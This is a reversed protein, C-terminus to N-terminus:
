EAENYAKLISEEFMTRVEQNIPHVIDKFKGTKKDKHNPMAVFLGKTGDIVRLNKIVLGDDITVNVFAKLNDEEREVKRIDVSTIKM